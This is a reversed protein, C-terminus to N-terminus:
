QSQQELETQLKALDARLFVSIRGSDAFGNQNPFLEVRYAFFDGERLENNADTRIVKAQRYDQHINAGYIARLSESLRDRDVGNVLDVLLIEESRIVGTTAGATLRGVPLLFAQFTFRKAPTDYKRVMLREGPAPQLTPNARIWAIAEQVSQGPIAMVPRSFFVCPIALIPAVVGLCRGLKMKRGM